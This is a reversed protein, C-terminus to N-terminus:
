HNLVARSVCRVFYCLFMQTTLEGGQAELRILSHRERSPRTTEFTKVTCFQRHLAQYPVCNVIRFMSIPRAAERRTPM